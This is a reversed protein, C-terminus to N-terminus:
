DTREAPIVVLGVLPSEDDVQIQAIRIPTPDFRRFLGGPNPRGGWVDWFERLPLDVTAGAPIAEVDCVYRRNLWLRVDEFDTLTANVVRLREGRRFVQIDVPTAAVHQGRPYPDTALEPRYPMSQCACLLPAALIGSAVVTAVRRGIVARTETAELGM